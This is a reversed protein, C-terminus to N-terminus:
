NNITKNVYISYIDTLGFLISSKTLYEKLIRSIKSNVVAYPKVKYFRSNTLETLASVYVVFM